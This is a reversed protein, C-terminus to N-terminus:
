HHRQKFILNIGHLSKLVMQAMLVLKENPHKLTIEFNQLIRVTLIKMILWAYKRGICVHPGGSFPIYSFPPLKAQNEKSFREPRFEYPDEFFNEDHALGYMNIWLTIGACYEINGIKTDATTQRGTVPVITYYRLCEKIFMDLYEMCNIQNSTLSVTETQENTLIEKIEQQIKMQMAPYKALSYLIFGMAATTTDVGQLTPSHFLLYDM